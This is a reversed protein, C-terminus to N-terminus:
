QLLVCTIKSVKEKDTKADKIVHSLSAHSIVKTCYEDFNNNKIFHHGFLVNEYFDITSENNFSSLVSGFLASSRDM